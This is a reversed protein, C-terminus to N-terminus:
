PRDQRSDDWRNLLVASGAVALWQVGHVLLPADHWTGTTLLWAALLAGTVWWGTCYVCSILTVVADRLPSDPRNQQWALVRDRPGDLISDHVLLQTARYGALALLALDIPSLM